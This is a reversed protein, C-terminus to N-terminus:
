RKSLDALCEFQDLGLGGIKIGGLPVFGSDEREGPQGELVLRIARRACGYKDRTIQPGTFRITKIWRQAMWADRIEDRVRQVMTSRHWKRGDCELCVVNPQIGNRYSALLFDARYRGVVVQPAVFVRREDQDRLAAGWLENLTARAVVVLPRESVVTLADLMDAEIPSEVLSSIPRIHMSM